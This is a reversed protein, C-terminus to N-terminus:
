SNQVRSFLYHLDHPPGGAVVVDHHVCHAILLALHPSGVIYTEKVVLSKRWDHRGCVVFCLSQYVTLRSAGLVNTHWNVSELM